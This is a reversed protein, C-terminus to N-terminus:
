LSVPEACFLYQVEANQNGHNVVPAPESAQDAIPVPYPSAIVGLCFRVDAAPDPLEITGYGLDDGYPQRREFPRPVEVVGELTKGPAVRTARLQPAQAWDMRDTDPQPFVRQAIAVGGDAGTVYARSGDGDYEGNDDPLQNPVLLEADSSNTLRYTIRVAADTVAVDAHFEADPRAAPSTPDAPEGGETVASSVSGGTSPPDPEGAAGDDGCAPLALAGLVVAALALRRLPGDTTTVTPRV